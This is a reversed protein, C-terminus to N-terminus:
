ARGTGKCVFRSEKDGHQIWPYVCDRREPNRCLLWNTESMMAYMSLGMGKEPTSLDCLLDAATNDSRQKEEDWVQFANKGWSTNHKEADPFSNMRLRQDLACEETMPLRSRINDVTPNLGAARVEEVCTGFLRVMEQQEESPKLSWQYVRSGTCSPRLAMRHRIDAAERKFISIIWSQFILFPCVTNERSILRTRKRHYNSQPATGLRKGGLFWLTWGYALHTMSRMITYAPWVIQYLIVQLLPLEGVAQWNMWTGANWLCILFKKTVGDYWIGAVNRMKTHLFSKKSHIAKMRVFLRDVGLQEFTTRVHIREQDPWQTKM